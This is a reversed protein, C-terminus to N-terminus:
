TRRMAPPKRPFRSRHPRAGHRTRRSCAPGTEAVSSSRQENIQPRVRENIRPACRRSRRRDEATLRGEHHFVTIADAQDDSHFAMWSISRRCRSPAQGSLDAPDNEQVDEFKSSLPGIAFAIVLWVGIVAFKGASGQLQALSRRHAFGDTM